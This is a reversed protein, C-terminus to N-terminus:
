LCYGKELRCDGGGVAHAYETLLRQVHLNGNALENVLATQYVM